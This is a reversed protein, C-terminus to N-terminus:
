TEMQNIWDQKTLEAGREFSFVGCKIKGLSRYKAAKLAASHLLFQGKRKADIEKHLKKKDPDEDPDGPEGPPGGASGGRGSGAANDGGPVGSLPPPPAQAAPPPALPPVTPPPLAPPLM